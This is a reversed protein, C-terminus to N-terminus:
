KPPAGGERRVMAHGRRGLRRQTQQAASPSGPEATYAILRRGSSGPIVLNEFSLDMTGVLPHRLRKVGSTCTRVQHRAWRSAFEDCQVTLQGVLETLRRDDPHRGAILRLSAVALQAEDHWDTYLARHRVVLDVRPQPGM